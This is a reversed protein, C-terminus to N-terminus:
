ETKVVDPDDSLYLKGKENVGIVLLRDGSIRVNKQRATSWTGCGVAAVIENEELVGERYRISKNFGLLGTSKRGHQALYGELEHSADNFTGSSFSADQVLFSQINHPEIFAYGIGDHLVLDGRKEEEIITHWSGSKGHQRYEQVVVHYAACKRKSLPAQLTEGAFIVKGVVKGNEGTVFENIRRHPANRLARKVVQKKSFYWALVLGAIVLPIVIVAVILGVDSRLVILFPLM